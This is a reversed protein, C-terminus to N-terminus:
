FIVMFCLDYTNYRIRSSSIRFKFPCTFELLYNDFWPISDLYYKYDLLPYKVFAYYVRSNITKQQQLVIYPCLRALYLFTQLCEARLQKSM